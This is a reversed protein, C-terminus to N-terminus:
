WKMGRRLRQCVDLTWSSLFALIFLVPKFLCLFKIFGIISIKLMKIAVLFNKVIEKVRSKWHVVASVPLSRPLKTSGGSKSHISCFARDPKWYNRYGRRLNEVLETDQTKGRTVSVAACVPWTVWAEQRPYSKM